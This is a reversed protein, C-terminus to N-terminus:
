GRRFPPLPLPKAAPGLNDATIQYLFVQGLAGTATLPSTIQAGGTPLNETLVLHLIASGTGSNNSATIFVDYAGSVLATGSILGTTPDYSLGVPLNAASFSTPFNTATIQYAFPSGELGTVFTASTISPATPFIILRFGATGTGAANTATVTFSYNGPDRVSGSIFGTGTNM